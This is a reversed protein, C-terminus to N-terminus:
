LCMEQFYVRKDKALKTLHQYMLMQRQAFFFYRKNKVLMPNGLNGLERYIHPSFVYSNHDKCTCQSITFFLIYQNQNICTATEPKRKM